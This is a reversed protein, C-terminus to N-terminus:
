VYIYWKLSYLIQLNEERHPSKRTIKKVKLCLEDVNDHHDFYVNLWNQVHKINQLYFLIKNRKQKMLPFWRLVSYCWSKSQEARNSQTVFIFDLYFWIYTFVALWQTM